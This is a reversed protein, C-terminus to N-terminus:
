DEDNFEPFWFMCTNNTIEELSYGADANCGRIIHSKVDDLCYKIAIEVTPVGKLSDGRKVGIFHYPCQLCNKDYISIRSEYSQYRFTDKSFKSLRQNNLM